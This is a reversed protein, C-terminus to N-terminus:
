RSRHAPRHRSSTPGRGRTQEIRGGGLYAELEGNTVYSVKPNASVYRFVDELREWDDNEDIEWSHGWIHYIGGGETVQDFMAKALADWELCRLVKIPQFKVFCATQWVNLGFGRNRAPLSTGAEYPDDVTFKFKAVTRAYKYGADKVLQVHLNTYAGGPYCFVKIEKGTVQELVAKSEIIERAAEQESITPLRRHTMSHAGIEFDQSLGRIEPLSLLDQKAFEQNEPAVYFTAKLGHEKLM